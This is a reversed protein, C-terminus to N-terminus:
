RQEFFANRKDFKNGPQKKMEDLWSALDVAVPCDPSLPDFIEGKMAPANYEADAIADITCEGLFGYAKGSWFVNVRHADYGLSFSHEVMGSYRGDLEKRLIIRLPLFRHLREDILPEIVTNM